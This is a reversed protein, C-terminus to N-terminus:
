KIRRLRACRADLFASKVVIVSLPLMSRMRMNHAASNIASIRMLPAHANRLDPM